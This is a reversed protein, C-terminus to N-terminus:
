ILMFNERSMFTLIGVTTPMKVNILMSFLMRPKNQAQFFSFKKINEHKHAHLIEHGASNLMSFTKIVQPGPTVKSFTSAATPAFYTCLFHYM